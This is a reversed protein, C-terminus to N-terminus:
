ALRPKLKADRFVRFAYGDLMSQSMEATIMGRRAEVDAKLEQPVKVRWESRAAEDLADWERELQECEELEALSQLRQEEARRERDEDAAREAKRGERWAEFNNGKLANPVASILLGALNRTSKRRSLQAAKANIWCAIEDDTADARADLCANRIRSAADDDIQWRAVAECFESSSSFSSSSSSSSSPSPDFSVPLSPEFSIRVPTRVPTRVQTGTSGGDPDGDPRGNTKPQPVRPHQLSKSGGSARSERIAEDRVMRRSYITGDEAESYVDRKKLEALCCLVQKLTLGATQALFEVTVGGGNTRLHGYPTGEHMLCMMDIWLCRAIPSCQRLDIDGRWDAPYFQFSPRKM